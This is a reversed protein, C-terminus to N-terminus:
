MQDASCHTSQEEDKARTYVFVSYIIHEQGLDVMWWAADGWRYDAVFCHGRDVDPELEGDIAKQADYEGRWAGATATKGYAVNGAIIWVIVEREGIM